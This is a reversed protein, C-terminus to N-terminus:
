SLMKNSKVTVKKWILNKNGSKNITTLSGKEIIEIKKM